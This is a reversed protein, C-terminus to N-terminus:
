KKIKISDIRIDIIEENFENHDNIKRLLSDIKAEKYFEIAQTRNDFIEKCEKVNVTRYIDFGKKLTRNFSDSEINSCLSISVLYYIIIYKM